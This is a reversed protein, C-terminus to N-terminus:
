WVFPEMLKLIKVQIDPAAYNMQYEFAHPNESNLEMVDYHHPIVFKPNVRQTLEVAQTINLNGWNGNICVLMVEAKPACELVLPSLDTDSTHYVSRGNEFQIKYGSTDIVAEENPVTYIGTIDVGLVKQSQGVDIKIINNKPIGLEILRTCAFRPGVFTTSDKYKYAQITEPDLHDLHDHTVIFIDAKLASPELPIPLSRTLRPSVKAVSDSLYPDIVITADNAKIIFGAQGLFCLGAQDPQLKYKTVREV